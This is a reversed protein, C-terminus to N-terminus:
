NKKVASAGKRRANYARQQERIQTYNALYYARRGRAMKELDKGKAAHRALSEERIVAVRNQIQMPDDEM